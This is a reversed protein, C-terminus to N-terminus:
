SIFNSNLPTLFDQQDKIVSVYEKNELFPNQYTRRILYRENIESNKQENYKQDRRLFYQSNNILNPVIAKDVNLIPKDSKSSTQSKEGREWTIIEM